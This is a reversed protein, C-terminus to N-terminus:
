FSKCFSGRRHGSCLILTRVQWALARHLSALFVAALGAPVRSRSLHLNRALTVMYRAWERKFRVLAPDGRPCSIIQLNHPSTDLAEALALIVEFSPRKEGREIEGLYKPHIEAREARHTQDGKRSKALSPAPLDSCLTASSVSEPVFGVHEWGNPNLRASRTGPQCDSMAM